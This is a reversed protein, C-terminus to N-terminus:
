PDYQNNELAKICDPLTDQRANNCSCCGWRGDATRFSTFIATDSVPEKPRLVVSHYKQGAAAAAAAALANATVPHCNVSAPASHFVMIGVIDAHFMFCIAAADDPPMGEAGLAVCWARRAEKDPFLMSSLKCAVLQMMCLHNDGTTAPAAPLWARAADTWPGMALVVADAPLEEAAAAQQQQVKVGTVNGSSDRSIGTVTAIVLKSGAAAEAASMLAHTLKAPHVQLHTYCTACQKATLLGLWSSNRERLRSSLRLM